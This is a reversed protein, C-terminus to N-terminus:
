DREFKSRMSYTHDYNMVLIRTIESIAILEKHETNFSLISSEICTTSVLIKVNM